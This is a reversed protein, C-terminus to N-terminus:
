LDLDVTKVLILDFKLFPAHLWHQSLYPMQFKSHFCYLVLVVFSLHFQQFVLQYNLM